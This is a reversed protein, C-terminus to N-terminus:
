TYQAIQEETYGKELLSAIEEQTLYQNKNTAVVARDGLLGMTDVGGVQAINLMTNAGQETYGQGLLSNKYADPSQSVKSLNSIDITDEGNAVAKLSLLTTGQILDNALMNANFGDRGTYYFRQIDDTSNLIDGKEPNYNLRNTASQETEQNGYTVSLPDRNGTQVLIDGEINLGFGDAITNAVTGMGQSIASAKDVNGQKFKDGEMGFGENTSTALDYGGFGTKNSPDAQLGEAFLLAMGIPATLPNTALGQIGTGLTTTIGSGGLAAAGGASATATGGLLGSAGLGVATGFVNTPTAEELAANLSLLGSGLSLLEGGTFQTADNLASGATGLGENIPNGLFDTVGSSFRDFLSRPDDVIQVGTNTLNGDADISLTGVEKTWVLNNNGDLIQTFYEGTAEDFYSNFASAGSSSIGTPSLGSLEGDLKILSGDLNVASSSGITNDLIGLQSANYTDIYSSGVGTQAKTILNTGATSSNKIQNIGSVLATGFNASTNNITDILSAADSLSIDNSDILSQIINNADDQTIYGSGDVTTTTNDKTDLNTNGDANDGSSGSNITNIVTNSGTGNIASSNGGLITGDKIITNDNTSGDVDDDNSGGLLTTSGTNDVGGVTTGDKIDLETNDVSNGNDTGSSIITTATGEGGSGNSGDGNDGNDGNDDDGNDDDDGGLLSLGGTIIGAATGLDIGSDGGAGGGQNVFSQWYNADYPLPQYVNMNFTDPSVAFSRQFDSELTPYQDLMDLLSQPRQQMVDLDSLTDLIPTNQLLGQQPVKYTDRDDFRIIPMGVSDRGSPISQGKDLQSGLVPQFNRMFGSYDIKETTPQAANLLNIIELTEDDYNVVSNDINEYQEPRFRMDSITNGFNPANPTTLRTPEPTPSLLTPRTTNLVSAGTDSDYLIDNNALGAANLSTVADSAAKAIQQEPTLPLEQQLATLYSVYPEAM